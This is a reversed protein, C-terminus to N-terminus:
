KCFVQGFTGHAYEQAARIFGQLFSPHSGYYFHPYGWMQTDSCTMSKWQQGSVPKEFLCSSGCATSDYYHFEHGKLGTLDRGFARNGGGNEQAVELYGFRVPHGTDTCEGDIVSALPYARGERDKVSRHLYMFGGCEAISPMGQGLASRVAELMSTNGSLEKLHLEPYGGGLLLGSAGEPLERDHLPSFYAIRAGAQELLRLNERYYFCFAEDRAVAILPRSDNSVAFNVSFQGGQEPAAFEEAGDMIRLIADVDCTGELVAAFRRIRERLDGIEEPMKLGLHRSEFVLEPVAPIGGLLRVHGYGADSLEKELVSRLREYFGRSIRNLLVGRILQREDDALIGRILSIVTRGIGSASVVLIIPTDTMEGVEYCSGQRSETSMGDYIGMVGEILLHRGQGERLIGHLAEADCFFPDLNGSEVGLVQRHFMPDIYDPGCKLAAPTIGRQKLVELLGCTLLTKGSGSAPAAIMVRPIPM